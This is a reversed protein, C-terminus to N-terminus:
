SGRGLDHCLRDYVRMAVLSSADGCRRYSLFVKANLERM